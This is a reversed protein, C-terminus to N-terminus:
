ATELWKNQLIAHFDTDVTGARDTAIETHLQSLRSRIDTEDRPARM